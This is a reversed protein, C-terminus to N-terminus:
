KYFGARQEELMIDVKQDGRRKYWCILMLMFANAATLSVVWAGERSLKLGAISVIEHQTAKNGEDNQNATTLIEEESILIKPNHKWCTILSNHDFKDNTTVSQKCRVVDSRAEAVHVVGLLSVLVILNIKM